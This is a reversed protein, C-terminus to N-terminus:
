RSSRVFDLAETALDLWDDPEPETVGPMDGFAKVTYAFREEATRPVTM